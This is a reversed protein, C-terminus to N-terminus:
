RLYEMYTTPSALIESAKKIEPDHLKLYEYLGERYAYRKVIDETLLKILYDKNADLASIKAKNLSYILTNYDTKISSDM